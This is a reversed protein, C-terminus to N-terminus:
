PLTWTPVQLQRFRQSRKYFNFEFVRNGGLIFKWDAKLICILNGNRLGAERTRGGAHWGEDVIRNVSDQGVVGETIQFYYVRWDM